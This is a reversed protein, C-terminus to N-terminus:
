NNKINFLNELYAEFLEDKRVPINKQWTGQKFHIIPAEAIKSSDPIMKKFYSILSDEQAREVKVSYVSDARVAQWLGRGFRYLNRSSDTYSSCGRRVLVHLSIGLRIKESYASGYKGSRVVARVTLNQDNYYDINRKTTLSFTTDPMHGGRRNYAILLTSRHPYGDRFSIKVSYDRPIPARSSLRFDLKKEGTYIVNKHPESLPNLWELTVAPVKKYDTKYESLRCSSLGAWLTWVVLLRSMM